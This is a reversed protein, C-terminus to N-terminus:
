QTKEIIDSVALVIEDPIKVEQGESLDYRDLPSMTVFFRPIDKINVEYHMGNKRMQPVIVVPLSKGDITINATFNRTM